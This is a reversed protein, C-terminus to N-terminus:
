PLLSLENRLWARAMAWDRKTTRESVGLVEAIEQFKLGGFFHMEVVRVHRPDLTALRKLAEDLALVDLPRSNQALLTEDLTVQHQAAGGRRAALRARAHDVLIQRMLQSASALFHSRGALRVESQRVFRAYAEHVLATPQLTHNRRELRLQAAAIRRLDTYFREILVNRARPDGGNCRQILIGVSTPNEEDPHRPGPMSTGFDGCQVATLPQHPTRGSKVPSGSRADAFGLVKQTVLWLQVWSRVEKHQVTEM